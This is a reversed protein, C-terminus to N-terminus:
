SVVVSNEWMERSLVFLECPGFPTERVGALKGGAWRALLKVDRRFEPVLGFILAAKHDEFMRRFSERAAMIALRGRNVFLFHVEFTDDGMYDFLAINDGIEIPINGPTALWDRGSLGRNLPSAEIAEIIAQDPM